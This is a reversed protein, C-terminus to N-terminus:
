RRMGKGDLSEFSLDTDIDDWLCSHWVLRTDHSIIYWTLCYVCPHFVITFAFPDQNESKKKKDKENFYEELM